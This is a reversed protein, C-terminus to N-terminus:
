SLSLPSFSSSLSSCHRAQLKYTDFSVLETAEALMANVWADDGHHYHITVDRLRPLLITLACEEPVNQLRLSALNPTLAATLEIAEFCVDVLQLTVLAPMRLGRLQFSASDDFFMASSVKLTVLDDNAHMADLEAQLRAGVVLHAASRDVRRQDAAPLAATTHAGEFCFAPGRIVKGPDDERRPDREITYQRGCADCGYSQQVTGGFMSGMDQQLHPPHPVRCRTAASCPERCRTCPLFERVSSAPGDGVAM